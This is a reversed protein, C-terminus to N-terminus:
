ESVCIRKESSKKMFMFIIHSKIMEPKYILGTVVFHEALQPKIGFQICAEQLDDKGDINDLREDCWKCLHSYFRNWTHENTQFDYSELIIDAASDNLGCVVLCEKYKDM